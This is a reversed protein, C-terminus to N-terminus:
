IKDAKFSTQYCEDQHLYIQTLQGKVNTDAHNRVQVRYEYWEKYVKCNGHSKRFIKETVKLVSGVEVNWFEKLYKCKKTVVVKM